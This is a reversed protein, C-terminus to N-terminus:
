QRSGPKPRLLVLAIVIPLAILFWKPRVALIVVLLPITALLWAPLRKVEPYALWLVALFPGLRSCAAKLPEHWSVELPWIWLAAAGLLLVIAIM